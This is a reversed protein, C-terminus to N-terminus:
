TNWKPPPGLTIPRKNKIKFGVQENSTYLFIFSEKMNVKYGAVKSYDSIQKLLKKILEKLNEVYIIMDYAVLVNKNRGELDKYRENIKRTKNASDLVEM